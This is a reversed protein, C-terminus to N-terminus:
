LFHGTKGKAPHTWHASKPPLPGQEGRSSLLTGSHPMSPRKQGPINLKWLLAKNGAREGLSLRRM